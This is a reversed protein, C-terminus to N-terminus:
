NKMIKIGVLPENKILEKLYSKAQEPPLVDIKKFVEAYYKTKYQKLAYEKIINDIQSKCDFWGYVNKGIRKILVEKIENVDSVLLDYEGSIYQRFVKNCKPIDNLISMNKNKQLFQLAGDIRKDTATTQGSNLMGFVQRAEQISDLFLCLIPIKNNSSWVFPSETGSLERWKELLQNYKKNKRYQNLKQDLAERFSNLSKQIAKSETTSYLYDAEDEKVQTGLFAGLREKFVPQQKSYFENFLDSKAILEDLLKKKNVEKFNISNYIKILHAVLESIEPFGGKFYDFPMKISGIRDRIAVAADDLRFVPQYLIKNVAEILRYDLYVEEIRTNIEGKKWLWSSFEVLKSKVEGIYNKGAGLRNALSVLDPKYESIYYDMGKKLKDSNMIKSLYEEIGADRRFRKVIEEAIKTEDRGAQKETSIFECYLDIIPLIADKLGATDNKVIYYKLSWLPFGANSLSARAANMVDQISNQKDSSLKFIRGTSKCFHEHEETMKVIFLNDANKLGKIIGVIMDALYGYTLSENIKNGDKKYYGSDAYEKLLFGLIFASGPCPLLGFPKDKLLNWIDIIAVSSNVQFNENIIKEVAIKMKSIPHTPMTEYYKPNNWINSNILTTRLNALYNYNAPIRAKDMSMVPVNATYGSPSFVKDNDSITELGYPFIKANIERLKANFQGIGIFATTSISQSYLRIEASNIKTKWTDIISKAQSENFRAQNTDAKVLCRSKTKYKIFNEYEVETLPQASVDAFIIDKQHESLATQIAAYNKVSDAETRAFMFVLPIKNAGFNKTTALKIKLDEHTACIIEFRLAAYGTLSFNGAVNLEANSILKKFTFEKRIIDETDKYKQEDITQSQTVYLIDTGEPFSGLIGKQVFKQLINRIDDAIPTGSFAVAINSLTPRLLNTIGRGKEQIIASLMLAVKLVRRENDSECQRYFNNYHSIANRAKEDLDENNFDFFYDWLIDCTLYCWGSYDYNEIYWRFNHKEIDKANPDGSLFQFMTRQNSNIRASIYQLIFASYPHLPLLGKLDDNNIDEVYKNITNKVSKEVNYWLNSAIHRWEEKLDPVVDIANRMLMFATTNAMDIRQLKFRAELKKRTDDDAFIFQSHSKHTILVFFFRMSESAHALEQLGSTSNQNKQFFETFEDWIFVIAYLNNSKIVDDLWSVVDDVNKALNVGGLNAVDVIRELLELCNDPGLDELDKVVSEPDPYEIFRERFKAFAGKFNFSDNPDNLRDLVNDYFTRGGFYTYGNEQLAQKVSEQVATFLRNDGIVGSSSARHVM